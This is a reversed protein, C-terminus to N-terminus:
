LISVSRKRLSKKIRAFRMTLNSKELRNEVVLNEITEESVVVKKDERNLNAPFVISDNEREIASGSIAM